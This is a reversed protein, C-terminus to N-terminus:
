SSWCRKSWEKKGKIQTLVSGSGPPTVATVVVRCECRWSGPAITVPVLYQYHWGSQVDFRRVPDAGGQLAGADGPARRTPWGRSRAELPTASGMPKMTRPWRIDPNTEEM